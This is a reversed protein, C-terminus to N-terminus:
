PQCKRIKFSPLVFYATPADPAGSASLEFGALAQAYVDRHPAQPRRKRLALTALTQVARLDKISAVTLQSGTLQLHAALQAHVYARLEEPRVMRAELARRRLRRHAEQEPTFNRLRNALRPIPARTARPRYLLEMSVLQGPGTPIAFENAGASRCGALARRVRVDFHDPARLRYDILALMKRHMRRLDDELRDLYEQLRNLDHIRRLARSVRELARQRDGGTTNAMHWSVLQELRDSYEIDQALAIVASKRALPHDVATLRAYDAMYVEAIYDTFVQRIVQATTPAAALAKMVERVRIGIASVSTVLARAQQAAEDLDEGPHAGERVRQLTSEISRMKAGVVLPGQEIFAILMALFGSVVPPMSVVRAFGAREELFWGASELKEFYVNARQNIPTDPAEGSEAQWPDDSELIREIAQIVDRRDIGVAPPLDAEPGFFREYLAILLGWYHERNASALPGFLGGPLTQFLSPLPSPTTPIL